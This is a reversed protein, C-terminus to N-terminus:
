TIHHKQDQPLNANNSNTQPREKYMMWLVLIHIGQKVFSYIYQLATCLSILYTCSSSDMIYIQGYDYYSEGDYIAEQKHLFEQSVWLEARVWQFVNFSDHGCIVFLAKLKAGVWLIAAQLNSGRLAM